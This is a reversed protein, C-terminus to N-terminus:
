KPAEWYKVERAIKETNELLEKLDKGTKFDVLDNIKEAQKKYEPNELARRIAAILIQKKEEPLNKPAVIFRAVYGTVKKGTVEEFTPVSPLQPVRKDNLVAIIRLRGEKAFSTYYSVNGGVADITNGWLMKLREMDSNTYVKDLSLGPIAKEAAAEAQHDDSGVGGVGIILKKPAKKAYDIFEKLTQFRKDGERVAWLCPDFTHLALWGFSDLTEKRKLRPDLFSLVHPLNVYAIRYEDKPASWKAVQAWAVWGGGGGINVVKVPVGLEKALFPSLVRASTDTGGGPNWPVIFEIPKSPFKEGAGFSTGHLWAGQALLFSMFSMFFIFRIGKGKERQMKSEEKEIQRGLGRNSRRMEM